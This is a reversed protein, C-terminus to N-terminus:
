GEGGTWRLFSENPAGAPYCWDPQLRLGGPDRWVFDMAAEAKAPDRVHLVYLGARGKLENLSFAPDQLFIERLESAIQQSQLAGQVIEAQELDYTAWIAGESGHLFDPAELVITVKMTTGYPVDPPAAPAGFDDWALLKGNALRIKGHDIYTGSLTLTNAPM